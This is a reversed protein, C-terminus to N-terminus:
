HVDGTREVDGHPRHFAHREERLDQRGGRGPLVSRGM